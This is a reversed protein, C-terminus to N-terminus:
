GPINQRNGGPLGSGDAVQDKPPATVTIPVNFATYTTTQKVELKPSPPTAITVKRPMQRGDIWVDFTMADVGEEGGFSKNFQTRQTGDLKAVGDKLHFTGQYHTTLVGAVTEQGIQHVDKSATLLRTNPGPHHQTGQQMSRMDLGTSKSAHSLTESVWPKGTKARLSPMKMYTKDGVILETYGSTSRGNAEIAPVTYRMVLPEIQYALTGEILTRDGPANVTDSTMGQYSRVDSAQDAAKALAAQAATVHVGGNAPKGSSSAKDQDAGECAALSLAILLATAAGAVYRGAEPTM